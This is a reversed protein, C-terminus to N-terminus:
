RSRGSGSKDPARRVASRQHAFLGLVEFSIQANARLRSPVKPTVVELDVLPFSSTVSRVRSVMASARSPSGALGEVDLSSVSAKKRAM